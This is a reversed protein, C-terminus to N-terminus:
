VGNNIIKDPAASTKKLEMSPEFKLMYFNLYNYEGERGGPQDDTTLYRYAVKLNHLHKCNHPYISIVKISLVKNATALQECPGLIFLSIKSLFALRKLNFIAKEVM